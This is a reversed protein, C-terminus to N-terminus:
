FNWTVGGNLNFSKYNLTQNNSFVNDTSFWTSKHRNLGGGAFFATSSKTGLPITFNLLIRETIFDPSNFLYLGNGTTLNRFEGVIWSFEASFAKPVSVGATITYVPKMSSIDSLTMEPQLVGAVRGGAYFNSNGLPYIMLGGETQLARGSGFRNLAVGGDVAFYGTRQRLNMGASYHFATGRMVTYFGSSMGTLPLIYDYVTVVGHFYPRFSFGGASTFSFSGYYQNQFVKQNNLNIVRTGDYYHLLSTKTVNNFSHFYYVGPSVYHSLSISPNVIGRAVTETGPESDTFWSAPNEVFADTDFGNYYASIVVTNRGLRSESMVKRGHEESLSSILRSAAGYEGNYLNCYFLYELAIPDGSNHELAKKFHRAAGAYQGREFRAIGLRMRMYYFDHGASLADVGADTLEKWRKELYM